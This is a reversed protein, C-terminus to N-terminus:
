STTPLIIKLHNECKAKGKKSQLAKPYAIQQPVDTLKMSEQQVMTKKLDFAESNKRKMAPYEYNVIKNEKWDKKEKIRKIMSNEQEEQRQKTAQTIEHVVRVELEMELNYIEGILEDIRENLM